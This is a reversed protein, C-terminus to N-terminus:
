SNAHWLAPWSTAIQANSSQPGLAKATITWLCEGPQVVHGSNSSVPAEPSPTATVTPAAVTPAAVIPAAAAPAPSSGARDLSPVGTSASATGVRLPGGIAVAIVPLCWRPAVKRARDQRRAAQEVNGVEALLLLLVAFVVRVLTIWVLVSIVATIAGFPDNDIWLQWQAGSLLQHILHAPGDIM